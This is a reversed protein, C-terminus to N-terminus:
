EGVPAGGGVQADRLGGQLAETLWFNSYVLTLSFSVRPGNSVGLQAFSQPRRPSRM